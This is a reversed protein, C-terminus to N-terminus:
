SFLGLALYVDFEVSDIRGLTGNVTEVPTPETSALDGRREYGISDHLRVLLRIPQNWHISTFEGDLFEGKPALFFFVHYERAISRERHHEKEFNNNTLCIRM